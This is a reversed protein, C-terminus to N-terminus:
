AVTLAKTSAFAAVKLKHVLSLGYLKIAKPIDQPIIINEYIRENIFKFLNESKINKLLKMIPNIISTVYM